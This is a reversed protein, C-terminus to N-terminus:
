ASCLFPALVLPPSPLPKPPELPLLALLLEVLAEGELFFILRSATTSSSSSSSSAGLAVRELGLREAELFAEDEAEGEMTLRPLTAVEEM